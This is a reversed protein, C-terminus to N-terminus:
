QIVNNDGIRKRLESSSYDHFREVVKVDIGRKKMINYGTLSELKDAYDSGVFRVDIDLTAMMNALDKETDYPIIRHKKAGMIAYLQMYRELVTQVPKNKEPRDIQPNTHLGIILFDCNTMCANLFHLHGPHLLDFAGCTFGCISKETSIM